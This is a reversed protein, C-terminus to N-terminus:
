CTARWAEDECAQLYQLLVQGEQRLLSVQVEAGQRLRVEHADDPDEQVHLRCQLAPLPLDHAQRRDLQAGRGAANRATERTLGHRLEDQSRRPLRHPVDSASRLVALSVSSRNSADNPL